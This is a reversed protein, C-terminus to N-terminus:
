LLLTSSDNALLHKASEMGNSLLMKKAQFHCKERCTEFARRRWFCFWRVLIKFQRMVAVVKSHLIKWDSEVVGMLIEKRDILEYLDKVILFGDMKIKWDLYNNSNLM